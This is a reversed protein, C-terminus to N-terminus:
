LIKCKAVQMHGRRPDSGHVEKILEVLRRADSLDVLITLESDFEM